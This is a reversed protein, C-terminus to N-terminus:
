RSRVAEVGLKYLFWPNYILYRKWLRRPETALRFMWELGNHQMWRPAQAKTESLFDFAAGVPILLAGPIRPANEAVWYDQKPTGLAVWVIDPAVENIAKIDKESDRALSDDFPPSIAGVIQLDPFKQGLRDRLRELTEQTSGYLFHRYSRDVSRGCLELMLEPGYLREVGEFGRSRAIWVIPMGDPLVLDAQNIGVRLKLDSQCCMITYVNCLSVYGSKRVSISRDIYSVATQLDIADIEVSLVRTKLRKDTM